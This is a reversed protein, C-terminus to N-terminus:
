PAVVDPFPMIGLRFFLGSYRGDEWVAVGHISFPRFLKFGIRTIGLSAETFHGAEETWLHSVGYQLALGLRRVGPIRDFLFSNDDWLQHVEVFTKRTSRAYLPLARFSPDRADQLVMRVNGAFHAMDHYFEPPDPFYGGVLKYSWAGWVTSVQRTATLGLRLAHFSGSGPDVRKGGNYSFTFTPYSAPLVFRQDPYQIFRVGPQWSVSAQWVAHTNAGLRASWAPVGLDDNSAHPHEADSWSYETQNTLPRRRDVGAQAKVSWGPFIESGAELSTRTTEFFRLVGAKEWLLLTADYSRPFTHVPNLDRVEHAALLRLWTRDVANRQWLIEGLGRHQNDMFGFLYYGGIDLKRGPREKWTREWRPAVGLTWGQVANFWDSKAALHFRHGTWSNRWTYGTLLHGPRLKNRVGDLSDLYEKSSRVIALSDKRIYDQTESPTLPIPRHQEWYDADKQNAEERVTMIERTFTGAPFVPNIVYDSTVATFNGGFVIGMIRLSFQLTQQFLPWYGDGVPLFSQRVALTDILDIKTNGRLTFLDLSHLHFNDGHLFLTGRFVPDESRKPLVNIEHIERGDQDSFSRVLRYRYYDLANDAIPNVLPRGALLTNEYFDLIGFQNFSFGNSNGSVRSSIMVEKRKDPREFAVEAESESLYLFGTSDEGIAKRLAGGLLSDPTQLIRIGGKIYARCTYGRLRDRHYTRRQIAERILAYAPDEGAIVVLEELAIGTPILQVHLTQIGTGMRVQRTQATHGIYQFVVEHNGPELDFRYVGQENASVGRTTGKLHVTAFPLPESDGGTITGTLQGTLIGPTFLAWLGMFMFHDIWAM